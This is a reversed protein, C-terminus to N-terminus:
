LAMSCSGRDDAAPLSRASPKVNEIRSRLIFFKNFHSKPTQSAAQLNIEAQGLKYSQCQPM